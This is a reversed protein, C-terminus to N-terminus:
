AIQQFTVTNTGNVVVVSTRISGTISLVNGDAAEAFSMAIDALNNVTCTENASDGFSAGTWALRANVAWPRNAGIGQVNTNAAYAGLGTLMEAPTGPAIATGGVINGVYCSFSFAPYVREAYADSVWKGRREIAKVANLRAKLTGIQVDGRDYLLALTVAGGDLITLTGMTNTKVYSSEAAM